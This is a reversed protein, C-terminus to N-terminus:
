RGDQNMSPTNAAMAWSQEAPLITTKRGSAPCGHATGDAVGAEDGAGPPEDVEAVGGGGLVLAGSTGPKEGRGQPGEEGDGDGLRGTAGHAREEFLSASAHVPHPPDPLISEMEAEVEEPGDGLGLHGPHEGADGRDGSARRREVDGQSPKPDEAFRPSLPDEPNADDSPGLRQGGEGDATLGGEALDAEGDLLPGEDGVAGEAPGARAPRRRRPAGPLPEGAGSERGEPDLPQDEVLGEELWAARPVDLM